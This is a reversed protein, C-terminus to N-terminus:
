DADPTRSNQTGWVVPALRASECVARAVAASLRFSALAANRAAHSRREQDVIV